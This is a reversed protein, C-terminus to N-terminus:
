ALAERRAEKRAMPFGRDCFRRHCADIGPLVDSYGPLVDSCGPLVDSYGSLVSSCGFSHLFM